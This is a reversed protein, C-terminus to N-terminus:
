CGCATVQVVNRSRNYRRIKKTTAYLYDIAAYVSVVALLIDWKVSPFFISILWIFILIATIKRREEDTLATFKM